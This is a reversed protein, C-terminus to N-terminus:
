QHNDVQNLHLDVEFLSAVIRLCRLSRLGSIHSQVLRPPPILLLHPACAQLIEGNHFPVMQSRIIPCSFSNMVHRFHHGELVHPYSIVWTLLLRLNQYQYLAHNSARIQHHHPPYPHCLHPSGNTHLNQFKTKLLDIRPVISMRM